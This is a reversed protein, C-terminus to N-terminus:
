AGFFWQGRERALIQVREAVILEVQANGRELRLDKSDPGVPLRSEKM